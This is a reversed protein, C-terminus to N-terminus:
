LVISALSMGLRRCAERAADDPKKKTIVPDAVLIMGDEKAQEVWKNMWIGGGWGFSGFLAVRHGKLLPRMPTYSARFMTNLAETGSAPCGFAIIDYADPDLEDIFLLDAKGGAEEVGRVVEEAMEQTNGTNSWYAVAIRSM